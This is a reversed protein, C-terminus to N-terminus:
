LQLGVTLGYTYPSIKKMTTTFYLDTKLQENKLCVNAEHSKHQSFAGPVTVVVSYFFYFIYLDKLLYSYNFYIFVTNTSVLLFLVVGDEEYLGVEGAM